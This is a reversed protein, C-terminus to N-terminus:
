VRKKFVQLDVIRKLAADGDHFFTSDSWREPHLDLNETNANTKEQGAGRRAAAQHSYKGRFSQQDYGYIRLEDHVM